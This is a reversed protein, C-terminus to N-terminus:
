AEVRMEFLPSGYKVAAKNPQMIKTIVGNQEAKVENMVKMAEIICVTMGAKVPTGEHVFPEADPSGSAYYTGVLPSTITVIQAVSNKEVRQPRSDQVLTKFLMKALRRAEMESIESFSGPIEDMIRIMLTGSLADADKLINRIANILKLRHGCFDFLERYGAQLASDDFFQDFHDDWDAPHQLLFSDVKKIDEPDAAITGNELRTKETANGECVPCRSKQGIEM